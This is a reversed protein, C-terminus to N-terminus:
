AQQAERRTRHPGDGEALSPGGLHAVDNYRLLRWGSEGHDWETMSANATPL